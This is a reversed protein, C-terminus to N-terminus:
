TVCLFVKKMIEEQLMVSIGKVLSDNIAFVVTISTKYFKMFIKHNNIMEM